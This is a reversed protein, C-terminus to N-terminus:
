KSNGEHLFNRIRSKKIRNILPMMDAKHYWLKKMLFALIQPSDKKITIGSCLAQELITGSVSNMDVIDIEKSLSLSLKLMVENKFEFSLENDGAIGIDIDSKKTLRNKFASGFLTAIKIESYHELIEQIDQILKQKSEM